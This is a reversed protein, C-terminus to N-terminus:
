KKKREQLPCWSKTVRRHFPIRNSQLRILIGGFLAPEPAKIESRLEKRDIQMWRGTKVLFVGRREECIFDPPLIRLEHLWKRSWSFWWWGGRWTEGGHLLVSGVVLGADVRATRLERCKNMTTQRDCPGGNSNIRPPFCRCFM